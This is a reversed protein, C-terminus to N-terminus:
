DQRSLHTTLGQLHVLGADTVETSGLGLKEIKTLGKLHVMGADTIQGDLRLVRLATLGQLYELSDHTTGFLCLGEPNTLGQLHELGIQHLARSVSIWRGIYTDATPGVFVKPDVRQDGVVVSGIEAPHLVGANAFEILAPIAAKADPGIQGLTAVVQRRRRYSAVPSELLEILAPVADKASPGM